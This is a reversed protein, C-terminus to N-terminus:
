YEPMTFIISTGKGPKSEARISGNHQNVFDKVLILGLGSGKENNTGSASTSHSNIFLNKSTVEDMGIGTDTVSIEIMNDVPQATVTILGGEPTYKISNTVLNQLISRLMLIDANVYIDFPVKNELVIDKQRAYTKLLELSLDVNFVLQIKEPKIATKERQMQAWDVLENLQQLINHSTSSIVKIYPQISDFIYNETEHILVDSSILLATLPNRLDHSIVSLFKDKSFNLDKLEHNLNELERTREFVREELHKNLLLIEENARRLEQQQAKLDESLIILEATQKEKETNQFALEINKEELEKARRKLEEQNKNQITLDTLIISIVNNNDLLFINVSMLVPIIKGHNTYIYVEEKAAKKRAQKLLEEFREKSSNDIFKKFQSGMVNQLPFNVMDAFCSNCYIITGEENITVAGEHMKEILIRYTKDATHETYVKLFKEDAVILADIDGAKITGNSAKADHLHQLEDIERKLKEIKGSLQKINKPM